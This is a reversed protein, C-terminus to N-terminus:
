SEAPTLSTRTLPLTAILLPVNVPSSAPRASVPGPARRHCTRLAADQDVPISVTRIGTIRTPTATMPWGGYLNEGGILSRPASQHTVQYSSGSAWSSAVRAGFQYRARVDPDTIARWLLEPTTRIYIESGTRTLSV